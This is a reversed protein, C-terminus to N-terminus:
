QGGNWLYLNSPPSSQMYQNDGWCEMERATNIACFHDDGAILYSFTGVPSFNSHIWWKGLM